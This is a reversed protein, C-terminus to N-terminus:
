TKLISQQNSLYDGFSYYNGILETFVTKYNKNKKNKLSVENILQQKEFVFFDYEDIIDAWESYVFLVFSQLDLTQILQFIYDSSNYNSLKNGEKAFILIQYLSINDGLPIIYSDDIKFFTIEENSPIRNSTIIGQISQGM